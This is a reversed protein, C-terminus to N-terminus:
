RRGGRRKGTGHRIIRTIERESILVRRGIRVGQLEGRNVLRRLTWASISLRAAAKRIDHLQDVM